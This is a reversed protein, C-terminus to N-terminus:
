VSRCPVVDKIVARAAVGADDYIHSTLEVDFRRRLDELVAELTTRDGSYTLEGTVPNHTVTLTKM